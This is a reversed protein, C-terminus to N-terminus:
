EAPPVEPAPKAVTQSGTSVFNFDTTNNKKDRISLVGRMVGDNIDGRWFAVGEKESTQMTEWTFTGDDQLRATFNTPGYGGQELNKSAVKDDTFSLVDNEPKGRGGDMPTLTIDWETNNLEVKGQALMEAMQDASLPVTAQEPASATDEQSEVYGIGAVIFVMVVIVLVVKKKM